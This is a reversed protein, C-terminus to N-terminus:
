EGGGPPPDKKSDSLAIALIIPALCFILGLLTWESLLNM